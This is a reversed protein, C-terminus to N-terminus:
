KRYLCKAIGGCLFCLWDAYLIFQIAVLRLTLKCMHCKLLKIQAGFSKRSLRWARYFNDIWKYLLSCVVCGNGEFEQHQLHGQRRQLWWCASNRMSYSALLYTGIMDSIILFRFFDFIFRSQKSGIEIRDSWISITWLDYSEFRFRDFAIM